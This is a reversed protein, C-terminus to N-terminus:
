LISCQQLFWYRLVIFYIYFWCNNRLAKADNMCVKLPHVISAPFDAADINQKICVLLTAINM